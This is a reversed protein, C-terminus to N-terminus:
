GLWNTTKELEFFPLEGHHLQLVNWKFQIMFDPSNQIECSKVGNFLECECLSLKFILLVAQACQVIAPGANSEIQARM